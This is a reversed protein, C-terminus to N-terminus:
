SDDGIKFFPLFIKEGAFVPFVPANSPTLHEQKERKQQRKRL